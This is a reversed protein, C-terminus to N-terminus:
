RSGADTSRNRATDVKLTSRVMKITDERQWQEADEWEKISYDGAARCYVVLVNHAARAIRSIKEDETV